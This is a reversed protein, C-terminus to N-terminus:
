LPFPRPHFGCSGSGSRNESVGLSAQHPVFIEIMRAVHASMHQKSETVGSQKEHMLHTHTHTACACYSVGLSVALMQTSCSTIATICLVLAAAWDAVPCCVHQPAVAQGEPSDMSIVPSCEFIHM